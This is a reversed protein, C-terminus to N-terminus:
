AIEQRKKAKGSGALYFHLIVICIDEGTVSQNVYREYQQKNSRTLCLDNRKESSKTSCLADGQEAEKSHRGSQSLGKMCYAKVGESAWRHEIM